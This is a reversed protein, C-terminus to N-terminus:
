QVLRYFKAAGPIPNTLTNQGNLVVPGPAVKTWVASTGLNPTSQLVFANANTPWTLIVNAGAATITLQPPVFLSFVTGAGMSGGSSATGYLTTGSLLLRGSPNAGDSNTYSGISHDFGGPSFTHLNRFGTGDSNIAFITGNGSSGGVSTMGYLTRGSLILSGAPAAGDENFFPGKGPTGSTATFSYLVEFATGDSSLRFLTGNGSAGGRQCAGYLINSSFILGEQPLSGDANTYYGVSNVVIGSFSHLNTFRSGDTSLAFVTGQGSSGGYSTTGYLTNGSLIVGYPNTGDPGTFSHLNTYGTGDTNVKFVTGYGPSGGYYTTGYLTNGSLMLGAFPSSGESAGSFAHLVSLGTGDSDLAFITGQLGPSGSTTGYLVNGSIVLDCYPNAEDAGGTFNYLTNYSTGDTSVVFVTGDGYAGFFTPTWYLGGYFTTGYLANGSLVLGAQPAAGDYVDTAAFTHLLTFTQAAGRDILTTALGVSFNLLLVTKVHIKM